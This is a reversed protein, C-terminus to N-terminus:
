HDKDDQKTKQLTNPAHEPPSYISYLKLEGKSNNIINHKMGAPVIIADDEKLKLKKGNLVATAQGQEIRIFQDIDSHVEEGIEEGEKLSMVVLQSTKGTFLVKRYNKNKVTDKEINGKFYDSARKSLRSLRSARVSNSGDNENKKDLGKSGAFPDNATQTPDPANKKPWIDQQIRKSIYNMTKNKSPITENM